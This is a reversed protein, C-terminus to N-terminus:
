KLLERKDNIHLANLTLALEHAYSEILCVCFIITPNVNEMDWSVFVKTEESWFEINNKM